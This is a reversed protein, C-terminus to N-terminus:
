KYIGAMKEEPTREDKGNPSPTFNKSTDTGTKQPTHFKEALAELEQLDLKDFSDMWVSKDELSKKITAKKVTNYETYKEALPKLANMEKERETLKKNLEAIIEEHKGKARLDKQKEAEKEAEYATLRESLEKEKLRREKSEQRLNLIEKVKEEESLSKLKEHRDAIEKELKEAELQGATKTETEIPTEKQGDQDKNEDSM